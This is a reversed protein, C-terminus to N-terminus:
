RVAVNCGTGYQVPHPCLFFYETQPDLKVAVSTEKIEGCRYNTQHM